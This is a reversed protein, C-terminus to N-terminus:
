GEFFDTAETFLQEGTLFNIQALSQFAQRAVGSATDDDKMAVREHGGGAFHMEVRRPFMDPEQELSDKAPSLRQVATFLTMRPVISPKSGQAVRSQEVRM